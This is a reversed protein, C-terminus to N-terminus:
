ADGMLRAPATDPDGEDAHIVQSGDGVEIFRALTMKKEGSLVVLYRTRAGVFRISDGVKIPKDTATKLTM